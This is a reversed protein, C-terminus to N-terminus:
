HGPTLRGFDTWRIILCGMLITANLRRASLCFSNIRVNLPGKIKMTVGYEELWGKYLRVRDEFVDFQRM